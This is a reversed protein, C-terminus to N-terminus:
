ELNPKSVRLYIEAMNEEKVLQFLQEAGKENLDNNRRNVIDVKMRQGSEWTGLCRCCRGNRKDITKDIPTENMPGCGKM